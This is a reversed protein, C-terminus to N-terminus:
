ESRGKLAKNLWEMSEKVGVWGSKEAKAARAAWAEDELHMFEPQPHGKPARARSALDELQRYYVRSSELRQSLKGAYWSGAAVGTYAGISDVFLPGVNENQAQHM